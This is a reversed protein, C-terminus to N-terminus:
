AAGASFYAIIADICAALFDAAGTSLNGGEIRRCTMPPAGPTPPPQCGDAPACWILASRGLAVGTLQGDSTVRGVACGAVLLLSALVAARIM